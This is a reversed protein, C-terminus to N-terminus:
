RVFHLFLPLLIAPALLLAMILWSARRAFNFTLGWGLRKPVVVRDDEPNFYFIGCRYNARSQIAQHYDNQNLM